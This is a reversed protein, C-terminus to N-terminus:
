SNYKTQKMIISINTVRFYYLLFNSTNLGCGESAPTSFLHQPKPPISHQKTASRVFIPSTYMQKWKMNQLNFQLKKVM